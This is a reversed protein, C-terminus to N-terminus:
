GICCIGAECCVCVVDDVVGVFIAVGCNAAAVCAGVGAVGDAIGLRAVDCEACVVAAVGAVGSVVGAIGDAGCGVGNVVGAIGGAGCVGGNVVGVIGDDGCVVGNVVDAIDDAGCVGGNVVGVIGDAGCVVGNVVDAIDDAGSVGRNVVGVIDDDGCVVGDIVGSVCDVVAADAHCFIGAFNGDCVDGGDMAVSVGAFSDNAIFLVLISSAGVLSVIFGLILSPPLKDNCFSFAKNTLKFVGGPCVVARCSFCSGSCDSGDNSAIIFSCLRVLCSWCERGSM